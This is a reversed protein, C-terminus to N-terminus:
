FSEFSERSLKIISDRSYLDACNIVKNFCFSVTRCQCIVPSSLSPSYKREKICSLLVDTIENVGYFFAQQM